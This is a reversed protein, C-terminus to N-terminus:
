RPRVTWGRGACLVRGSADTFVNDHIVFLRVARLQRVQFGERFSGLQAAERSRRLGEAQGLRRDALPDLREFTGEPFRQKLPFAAPDQEGLRTAPEVVEGLTDEVEMALGVPFDGAM